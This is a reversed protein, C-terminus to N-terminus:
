LALKGDILADVYTKDEAIRVIFRYTKEVIETKLIRVTLKKTGM